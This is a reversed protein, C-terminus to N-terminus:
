LSKYSRLFAAAKQFEEDGDFDDDMTGAYRRAFGRYRKDDTDYAPSDHRTNNVTQASPAFTDVKGIKITTPASSQQRRLRADKAAERDTRISDITELVDKNFYQNRLCVDKMMTSIVTADSDNEVGKAYEAINDANFVKSEPTEVYVERPVEKIITKPCRVKELLMEIKKDKEDMQKRLQQNEAEALMARSRIADIERRHTEELNGVREQLQKNERILRESAVVVLKQAQMLQEVTSTSDPQEEEIPQGSFNIVKKFNSAYDRVIKYYGEFFSSNRRCHNRLNILIQKDFEVLEDQLMLLCWAINYALERGEALWRCKLNASLLQIADTKDNIALTCLYYADNFLDLPHLTAGLTSLNMLTQNYIDGIARDDVLFENIDTREIFSKSKYPQKSPRPM